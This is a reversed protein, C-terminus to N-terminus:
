DAVNYINPKIPQLSDNYDVLLQSGLSIAAPTGVQPMAAHRGSEAAREVPRLTLTFTTLTTPEGQITQSSGELTCEEWQGGLEIYLSGGALAAGLDRADDSILPPTEVTLTTEASDVHHRRIGHLSTDTTETKATRESIRVAYPCLLGYNNEVLLTTQRGTWPLLNLERTFIYEGVTNEVEILLRSENYFRGLTSPDIRLRTLSGNYAQVGESVRQTAVTGSGTRVYHTRRFGVLVPVGMELSPDYTFIYLYFPQSGYLTSSKGTAEGVVLTRRGSGSGIQHTTDWDPLDLRAHMPTQYGRFVWRATDTYALYANVPTGYLEWVEARYRIMSDTLVELIQGNRRPLEAKPCYGALMDVPLTARGLDTAHHILLPTTHTSVINGQSSWVTLRLGLAYNELATGAEGSTVTASGRDIMEEEAYSREGDTDLCYVQLTHQGAERATLTLTRTQTDHETTFLTAVRYDAAINALLGNISTWDAPNTEGWGARRYRLETGDLVLCFTRCRDLNDTLPTLTLTFTALAGATLQTETDLQYSNEGKAWGFLPPTKIISTIM